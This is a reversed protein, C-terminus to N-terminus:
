LTNLFSTKFIPPSLMIKLSPSFLYLNYKFSYNKVAGACIQSRHRHHFSYTFTYCYLLYINQTHYVSQLDARAPPNCDFFLLM